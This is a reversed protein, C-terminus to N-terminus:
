KDLWATEYTYGFEDIGIDHVYPQVGTLTQTYYIPLIMA